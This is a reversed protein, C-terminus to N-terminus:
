KKKKLLTKRAEEALPQLEKPIDKTIQAFGSMKGTTSKDMNKITDNLKSVYASMSTNGGESVSSIVEEVTKADKVKQAIDPFADASASDLFAKKYVNIDTVKGSAPKINAIEDLIGQMAEIKGKVTEQADVKKVMADYLNYGKENAQKEIGKLNFGLYDKSYADTVSIGKPLSSKQATVKPMTKAEEIVPATNDLVKGSAGKATQPITDKMIVNKTANATSQSTQTKIPAKFEQVAKSEVGLVDGLVKAGANGIVEMGKGLRYVVQGGVTGIPTVVESLLESIFSGAGGKLKQGTMATQGMEQIGLLNGYDLYAQKVDNGLTNYITQRAEDALLAQVQRVNGAINQGKYFKEPVFEAWGEKLKQLKALDISQVGAYDERIANLAEKLSNQRTIDDTSNVISQEVTDFYKPLDVQVGANKLRPEILDKWLTQSARKAQVGIQSKTGFLGPLTQGATTETITKAATQPAKETGSLVKAVRTFFPNEARYGQLIQAEKASTPVVAEVAKSGAKSTLRGAGQLVAPAAPIAAGLATGLGPALAEGVSQNQDTLGQGIDAMYGGGAGSAVAGLTKGAIPAVVGAVKGYPFLYAASQATEGVINRVAQTGTGPQPVEIGFVGTQVPKNEDAYSEYGKAAMSEPFFTRTVAETTRSVPRVVLTSAADKALKTLLGEEPKTEQTGGFVTQLRKNVEDSQVGGGGQSSLNLTEPNYGYQQRLQQIQEPTM